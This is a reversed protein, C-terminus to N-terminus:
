RVITYTRAAEARENAPLSEFEARTMVKRGSNNSGGGAGGGSSDFALCKKGMSTKLFDELANNITHGDADLFRQENNGISRLAFKEANRGLVWSKVDAYNDPLIGKDKAFKDFEKECDIEHKFGELIKINNELEAIKDEKTKLLGNFQTEMRAKEDAFLKQAAEPSNQQLREKLKSIESQYGTASEELARYKQSLEAKERKIDERNSKLKVISDEFAELIKKAHIEADGEEALIAKISELKIGEGSPKQTQENEM